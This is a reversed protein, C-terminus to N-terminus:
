AEGRVQADAWAREDKYMASVALLYESIDYTCIAQMYMKKADLPVYGERISSLLTSYDDSLGFMGYHNWSHWWTHVALKSSRTYSVPSCVSCEHGDDHSDLCLIVDRGTIGSM